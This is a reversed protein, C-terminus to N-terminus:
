VHGNEEGDLWGILLVNARSGRFYAPTAKGHSEWRMDQITRFLVPRSRRDDMESSIELKRWVGSDWAVFLASRNLNKSFNSPPVRALLLDPQHYLGSIASGSRQHLTQVGTMGNVGRTLISAHSPAEHDKPTQPSIIVGNYIGSALIAVKCPVCPPHFDLYTPQQGDLTRFLNLRLAFSAEIGRIVSAGPRL